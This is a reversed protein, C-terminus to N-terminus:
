LRGRPLEPMELRDASEELEEACRLIRAAAARLEVARLRVGAAQTRPSPPPVTKLDRM